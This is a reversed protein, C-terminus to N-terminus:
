TKIRGVYGLSVGKVYFPFSPSDPEDAKMCTNQAMPKPHPNNRPTPKPTPKPSRSLSLPLSLAHSIVVFVPAEWSPFSLSDPEDADPWKWMYLRKILERIVSLM